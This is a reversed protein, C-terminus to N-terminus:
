RGMMTKYLNMNGLFLFLSGIFLPIEEQLVLHLSIFLIGVLYIESYTRKKFKDQYFRSIAYLFVLLICFLIRSAHLFFAPSM